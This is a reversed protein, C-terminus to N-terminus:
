AGSRDCASRAALVNDVNLRSMILQRLSKPKDLKLVHLHIFMFMLMCQSIVQSVIQNIVNMFSLCFLGSPAAIACRRHKHSRKCTQTARGFAHFRVVLIDDTHHRTPIEHCLNCAQSSIEASAGEAFLASSIFRSYSSTQKYGICRQWWEAQHAHQM